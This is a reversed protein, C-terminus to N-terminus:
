AWLFIMNIILIHKKESETLEANMYIVAILEQFLLKDVKM